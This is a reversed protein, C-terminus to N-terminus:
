LGLSKFAKPFVEEYKSPNQAYAAHKAGTASFIAVPFRSSAAVFWKGSASSRVTDTDETSRIYVIPCDISDAKLAGRAIIYMIEDRWFSLPFSRAGDVQSALWRPNVDPDIEGEKPPIFLLKMIPGSLRNWLPGAPFLRVLPATLNFPWQLDSRGTPADVLMLRTNIRQMSSHSKLLRMVDLSLLGGMSSGVFVLNYVSGDEKCRKLIWSAAEKTVREPRFRPSTYNVGWVDGYEALVFKIRASLMDASALIGPLYVILTNNQTPGIPSYLPVMKAAKQGKDLDHRKIADFVLSVILAVVLAALIVGIIAPILWLM